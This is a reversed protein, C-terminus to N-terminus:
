IMELNFKYLPYTCWGSIAVEGTRVAIKNDQLFKEVWPNNNTDVYAQDNRLLLSDPLNVTLTAFPEDYGNENITSIVALTGNIYSTKRLAIDFVGFDTEVRYTKKEM